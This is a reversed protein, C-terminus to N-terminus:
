ILVSLKTYIMQPAIKVVDRAWLQTGFLDILLIFSCFINKPVINVFIKPAVRISGITL